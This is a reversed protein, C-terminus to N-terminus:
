DDGSPKQSPLDDFDPFDIEDLNDLSEALSQWKDIFERAADGRASEQWQESKSDFEDNFDSVQTDIVERLRQAQENYQEIKTKIEESKERLSHLDEILFFYTKGRIYIM